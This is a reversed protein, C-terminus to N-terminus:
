NLTNFIDNNVELLLSSTYISNSIYADFELLTINM